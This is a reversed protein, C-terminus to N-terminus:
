KEGLAALTVKGDMFDIKKVYSSPITEPEEFLASITIKDGDAELLTVNEMIIKEEGNEEFVISM